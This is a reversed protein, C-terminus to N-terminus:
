KCQKTSHLSHPAKFRMVAKNHENDQIYKAFNLTVNSIFIPTRAIPTPIRTLESELNVQKNNDCIGIGILKEKSFQFSNTLLRHFFIYAAFYENM